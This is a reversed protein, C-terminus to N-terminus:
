SFSADKISISASNILLIRETYFLTLAFEGDNDSISAPNM